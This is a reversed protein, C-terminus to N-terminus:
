QIALLVAFFPILLFRNYCYSTIKELSPRGYEMLGSFEIKQLGPFKTSTVVFKEEDVSQEM